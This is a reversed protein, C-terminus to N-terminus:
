PGERRFAEGSLEVSSIKVSARPPRSSVLWCEWHKKGSDTRRKEM